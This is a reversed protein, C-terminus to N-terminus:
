ATQLLMKLYDVEGFDLTCCKQQLAAAIREYGIAFGSCKLFNSKEINKIVSSFDGGGAVESIGEADAQFVLGSYFGLSRYIGADFVILEEPIGLQRISQILANLEQAALDLEPISNMLIIGESLPVDRYELVKKLFERLNEKLPIKLLTELADEKSGKEFLPILGNRLNSSIEESQLGYRVVHAHSVRICGKLNLEQFLLIM